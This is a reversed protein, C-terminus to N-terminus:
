RSLGLRDLWLQWWARSFTAPETMSAAVQAPSLTQTSSDAEPETGLVVLVDDGPQMYGLESRAIEEVYERSAYYGLDNKLQLNWQEALEIEREMASVSGQITVLENVRDLYNLFFLLLLLLGVITGLRLLPASESRDRKM